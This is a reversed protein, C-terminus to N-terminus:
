LLVMLHLCLQGTQITQRNTLSLPTCSRRWLLLWPGACLPPSVVFPMHGTLMNYLIVGAAWIDVAAGDYGEKSPHGLLLEPSSYLVQAVAKNLGGGRLDLAQSLAHSAWQVRRGLTSKGTAATAPQLNCNVAMGQFPGHM